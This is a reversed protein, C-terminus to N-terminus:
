KEWLHAIDRLLLVKWGPLSQELEKTCRTLLMEMRGREEETLTHQSFYAKQGLKEGERPMHVGLRELRGIRRYMYLVARNNDETGMNEEYRRRSERSYLYWGGGLLLPVLLWWMWSLDIPERVASEGQEGQGEQGPTEENRILPPTIPEGDEPAPTPTELSEEPTSEGPEATPENAPEEQPEETPEITPEVTPEPTAPAPTPTSQPGQGSGNELVATAEVMVWGVGQCYVEMWAHANKDTVTTWEGAQVQLAYGTVYRAPIDLAQLMAAAASAFHVCYGRHSQELFYLVFDVNSPYKGPTLTYEGQRRVFNAVQVATAYAGNGPYIGAQSALTRLRQKVEPDLQTYTEQAWEGYAKQAATQAPTDLAEQWNRSYSLTYRELGKSRLYHETLEGNGDYFFGYPTYLLGLGEGYIEVTDGTNPSHEGLLTLGEVEGAYEPGAEWRSGTYKGLSYGRLYLTGTRSGRVELVEVGEPLREGQTQLNESDKVGDDFLRKAEEYWTELKEQWRSGMSETDRPVYEEEPLALNLILCLLGLMVVTGVSVAGRARPAHRRLGGTILVGGFFIMLLCIASRSPPLDFYIISLALFPLPLSLSLWVSEGACLGWAMFLGLALVMAGLFPVTSIGEAVLAEAPPAPIFPITGSLVDQVTAVALQAGAYLKEWGFLAYLIVGVGFPIMCLPGYKPLGFMLTLFCTLLAATVVAEGWSFPVSYATFICLPAGLAGCFLLAWDGLFASLSFKENM